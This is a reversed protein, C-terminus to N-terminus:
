RARARARKPKKAAKTKKLESAAAGPLIRMERGLADYGIRKARIRQMDDAIDAAAAAIKNYATIGSLAAAIARFDEDWTNM